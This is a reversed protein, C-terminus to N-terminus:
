FIPISWSSANFDCSNFNCSILPDFILRNGDGQIYTEALVGNAYIASHEECELHYYEICECMNDQYITKENILNIAEIMKENLLLSHHPSVYLDVFPHNEGLADKKICIPRSTSDLKKVKFKGVWIVPEEKTNTQNLYSNNIIKGKTIVKDGEKINEVPVYGETTLILTGKSYCPNPNETINITGNMSEHFQCVYYLTNPADNPVSFTLTGNQTGNGVVGINYASGSNYGSNTTQIWFPHGTATINFTYITGRYLNLTPNSAGNIIYAGSGSNTVTYVSTM